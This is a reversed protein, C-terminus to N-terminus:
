SGSIGIRLRLVATNATQTPEAASTAAEARACRRSRAYRDADIQGIRSDRGDHNVVCRFRM